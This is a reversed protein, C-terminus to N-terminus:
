GKTKRKEVFDSLSKPPFKKPTIECEWVVILHWGLEKLMLENKRDREVNRKFKENWFETNSSPTTSRKCGRHRHWFCGRVEVITKYKPLVIDPHGPLTSVHLRFRFGNRHLFSRVLIEPKTNEHMVRSMIYSREAPTARDM